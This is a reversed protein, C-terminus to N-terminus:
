RNPMLKTVRCSVNAPETTMTVDIKETMAGCTSGRVFEMARAM